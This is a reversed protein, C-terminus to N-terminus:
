VHARGIENFDRGNFDWGNFDGGIFNWGNFNFREKDNMLFLNRCKIDRIVKEPVQFEIRIDEDIILDKNKNLLKNLEELTKITKM